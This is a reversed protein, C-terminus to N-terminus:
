DEDEVTFLDQIKMPLAADDYKKKIPERWADWDNGLTVGHNQVATAISVWIVKGDVTVPYKVIKRAVRRADVDGESAALLIKRITRKMTSASWFKIGQNELKNKIKAFGDESQYFIYIYRPDGDDSKGKSWFTDILELKDGKLVPMSGEELLRRELRKSLHNNKWYTWRQNLSWALGEATNLKSNAPTYELDAMINRKDANSLEDLSTIGAVYIIFYQQEAYSASACLLLLIVLFVRM